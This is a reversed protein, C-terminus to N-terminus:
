AAFPRRFNVGARGISKNMPLGLSIHDIALLDIGLALSNETEGARSYTMGARALRCVFDFRDLPFRYSLSFSTNDRLTEM